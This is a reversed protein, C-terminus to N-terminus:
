SRWEKLKIIFLTKHWEANDNSYFVFYYGNAYYDQFNSNIKNLIKCIIKATRYKM